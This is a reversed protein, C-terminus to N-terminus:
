TLGGLANLFIRWSPGDLGELLGIVTLNVVAAITLAAAISAIAVGIRARPTWSRAVVWYYVLGVAFLASFWSTFNVLPVGFWVPPLIPNWTWMGLATAVPDFHLDTSLAVASVILAPVVVKSRIKFREVVIDAIYVSPYFVTCWGAVTTLPTHSWPLYFRYGAESFFGMEIGSNELIFGYIAGLVFFVTVGPWGRERYCHAVIAAVWLPALIEFGFRLTAFDAGDYFLRAPLWWVVALVPSTLVLTLLVARAPRKEQPLSAYCLVVWSLPFLLTLAAASHPPTLLSATFVHGLSLWVSFWLPFRHKAEEFAAALPSQTQTTSTM